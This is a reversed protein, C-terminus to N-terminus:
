DSIGFITRINELVEEKNMTRLGLSKLDLSIEPEMKKLFKQLDNRIVDPLSVRQSADLIRFLRFVDNRHKRIDKEDIAEGSNKRDSLDLWARAKM